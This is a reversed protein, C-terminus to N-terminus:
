TSARCPPPIACSAARAPPCGTSATAARAWTSTAPTTRSCPATAGFDFFDTPAGYATTFTQAKGTKRDFFGFRDTGSKWFHGQADEFIHSFYQDHDTQQYDTIAELRPKGGSEKLQYLGYGATGALLVGDRRQFIDNVRPQVGDPFPLNEFHDSAYDYRQLGRSTGVWLRGDRDSFVSVVVNYNLSTTDEPHNLYTTFRYGDFRNLGYDTGIWIYGAKDQCICSILTSSLKDSAFFLSNQARLPLLCTLLLLLTTLRKIFM